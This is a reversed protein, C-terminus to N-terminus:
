KAEQSPLVAIITEGAVMRNGVSVRPQVGAPLYVDVRSGFRILGYRQGARRRDGERVKCIIRRAVLGAIQVCPIATGDETRFILSNRENNESAKDLSANLFTGPHYAIKEVVGEVPSRNVHVNFVNMFVSVRTLGSAAADPVGLDPPPKAQVIQCVVGDAPSVVVGPITPTHRQPDRFFWICWLTLLVGIAGWIHSWPGVLFYLGLWVVATVAAFTAVIPWGERAIIPTGPEKTLRADPVAPGGPGGTIESM